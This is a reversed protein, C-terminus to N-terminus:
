SHPATRLLRRANQYEDEEDPGDHEDPRDREHLPVTCSSQWLTVFEPNQVVCTRVDMRSPQPFCPGFVPNRESFKEPFANELKSAIVEPRSIEKSDHDQRCRSKGHDPGGASDSTVQDKGIRKERQRQEIEPL